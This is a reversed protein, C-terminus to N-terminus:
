CSTESIPQKKESNSPSCPCTLGWSSGVWKTNGPMWPKYLAPRKSVLSERFSHLVREVALEVTMQKKEHPAEMSLFAQVWQKYEKNVELPPPEGARTLWAVVRADVAPRFPEMLDYALPTARERVAHGIGFTPDIGVGLMKQLVRALLVSYGYNLLDNLGGGHRTRTFRELGLHRSLVTWYLRACSSEKGRGASGAAGLLRETQRSSPSLVAAVAAQNLCKATVTKQWLARRSADGLRVQARTLLTETSRNAPLLLGVPRFNECFVIVTGCAAATTFVRNHIQASFSNILIAGVDEMPLTRETGTGDRCILQGRKCTITCSAASIDVLHHSM